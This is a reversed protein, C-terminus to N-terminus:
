FSRLWPELCERESSCVDDTKAESNPVHHEKPLAIVVMSEDTILLSRFDFIPDINLFFYRKAYSSSIIRM